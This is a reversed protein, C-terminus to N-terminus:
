FLKGLAHKKMLVTMLTGYFLCSATKAVAIVSGPPM